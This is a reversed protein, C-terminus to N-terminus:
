KIPKGFYFPNISRHPSNSFGWYNSHFHLTNGRNLSPLGHYDLRFKGGTSSAYFFITGGGVSPNAYLFETRGIKFGYGGNIGFANVQSVKKFVVAEVAKESIFGAGYAYDNTTYDPAADAFRIIGDITKVTGYTGLSFTNALGDWYSAGFFQGGVYDLTSKAGDSFGDVYNSVFPSTELVEGIELTGSKIISAGAAITTIGAGKNGGFLGKLFSWFGPKPASPQQLSAMIDRYAQTQGFTKAGGSGKKLYAFPDDRYLFDATAPGHGGNGYYDFAGGAAYGSEFQMDNVTAKRGDPDIFSIPNNLAYNYPTFRRSTEALPDIVGWRGIDNMYMRAGYDSWGTEKQMEKGNYGYNYAPNGSLINYGEHKLGFPYFNNEEIVEAGSDNKTYSLRVNGM